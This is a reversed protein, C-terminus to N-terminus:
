GLGDICKIGKGSTKLFTHITENVLKKNSVQM